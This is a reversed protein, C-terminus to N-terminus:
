PRNAKSMKNLGNVIQRAEEDTFDGEILFQGNLIRQNVFWAAVPRTNVFTVLYQGRSRTTMEDLVFLGHADFRLLIAKGGATDYLDATLIDKESLTPYPSVSLKLNMSPIEVDLLYDAPLASSAQEHIRVTTTPSGFKRFLACGTLALVAFLGCLATKLIQM